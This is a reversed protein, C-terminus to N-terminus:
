ASKREESSSGGQRRLLADLKTQTEQNDLQSRHMAIVLKLSVLFVAAELLIEHTFGKEILSAVLLATTVFVTLWSAIATRKKRATLSSVDSPEALGVSLWDWRVM